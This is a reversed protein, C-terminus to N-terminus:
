TEGDPIDLDKKIVLTMADYGTLPTSQGFHSPDHVLQYANNKVDPRTRGLINVWDVQAFGM